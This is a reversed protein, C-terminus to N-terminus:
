KSCYYIRVKGKIVCFGSFFVIIVGLLCVGFIFVIVVIILLYNVKNKDIFDSFGLEGSIINLNSGWLCFIFIM